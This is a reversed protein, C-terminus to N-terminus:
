DDYEGSNDALSLFLADVGDNKAEVVQVIEWSEMFKSTEDPHCPLLKVCQRRADTESECDRMVISVTIYHYM